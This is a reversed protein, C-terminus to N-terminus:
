RRKEVAKLVDVVEEDGALEELDIAIGKIIDWLAYFANVGRNARELEEPLFEYDLYAKEIAFSIADAKEVKDIARVLNKNM